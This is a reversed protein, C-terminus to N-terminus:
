GNRLQEFTKPNKELLKSDDFIPYLSSFFAKLDMRDRNLFPAIQIPISNSVDESGLREPDIPVSLHGALAGVVMRTANVKGELSYGAIHPTTIQAHCLLEKNINPENEWVDIGLRIPKRLLCTLMAHEDVVGGRSSNLLIANPKLQDLFHGDILHHTKHIGSSTLPVHISVVDCQQAIQQLSVYRSDNEELARPPDCVLVRFGLARAAQEVRKGISGVGVIGFTLASLTSIEDYNLISFLAALVWQLVGGANCGPASYVKIGNAKCYKLDIHDTGITATAIVSVSSNKLLQANCATRTRVILVDADKVLEANIESGKVYMVTQVYPEFVGMLYPIDRDAVIRM